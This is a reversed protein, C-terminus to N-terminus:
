RMVAQQQQQQAPQQQTSIEPESDGNSSTVPTPLSRVIEAAGLERNAV